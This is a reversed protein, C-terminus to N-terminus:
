PFDGVRPPPFSAMLRARFRCRRLSKRDVSNSAGRRGGFTRSLRRSGGRVGIETAVMQDITEVLGIRAAMVRIIPGAGVVAGAYPVQEMFGPIRQRRRRIRQALIGFKDGSFDVRQWNRHASLRISTLSPLVSDKSRATHSCRAIPLARQYTTSEDGGARERGSVAIGDDRWGNRKHVPGSPGLQPGEMLDVAVTNRPRVHSAVWAAAAPYTQPTIPPHSTPGCGVMGAALAMLAVGVFVYRAM